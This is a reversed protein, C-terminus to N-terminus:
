APIRDPVLVRVVSSVTPESNAAIVRDIVEFLEVAKVPKSVYGDMDADLCRQRDGEMAHATLAVIPTRVGSRQQMTRIAATAEFGDMEPMQLDMLILDYRERAVAEVAERGNPVIFPLHGRRRLLNEAVKVNVVNDEAVLVRLHRAARDPIIDPAAPLTSPVKRAGLAATISELLTDRGVPKVVYRANGLAAVDRADRQHDASTLILVATSTCRPHHRLAAALEIGSSQGLRMDIVALSFVHEASAVAARAADADQATVVIMGCSSLMEDLIRLNTANDDVVLVALGALSDYPASQPAVSSASSLPLTVEFHFDSGRGVESEVRLVGGMLAVLRASITLGLGTGGFRRTTSGDAQEFANFITDHRDQPIGIGTDIVHLQLRARTNGIPAATVRVVVEGEHTFKIANGLLNVLVQRLRHPDGVFRDRMFPRVDVALELGKQHARLAVTRVAQDLLARLSFDVDDIELKGAEIKSFDLIDNIIVLLSEASGRVTQLYDRQADTLETGLALETMGIIGNMPTRIEHSMNALFDSKARNAAEALERARAADKEARARRTVDRSIAMFGIPEGAADREISVSMQITVSGGDRAINFEFGRVPHGTRYVEAHVDHIAAVVDPACMPALHERFSAGILDSEALGYLECYAPNVFLLNGRLDVVSCGDNMQEVIMRFRGESASFAAEAWARPTMGTARVLLRPTGNTWGVSAVLTVKFERGERHRATIDRAGLADYTAFV